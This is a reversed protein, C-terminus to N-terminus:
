DYRNTWLATGDAAYCVAAFDFDTGPGVSYGGVVVSGDRRLVMDYAANDYSSPGNNYRQAWQLSNILKAKGGHQTAPAVSSLLFNSGVLNTAWPFGAMAIHTAPISVASNQSTVFPAAARATFCCSFLLAIRLPLDARKMSHQSKLAISSS